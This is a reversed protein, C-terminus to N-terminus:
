YAKTMQRLINYYHVKLAIEQVLYESNKAKIIEGM